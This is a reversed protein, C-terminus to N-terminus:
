DQILEIQGGVWEILLDIMTQTLISSQSANPNNTEIQAIRQIIVGAMTDKFFLHCILQAIVLRRDTKAISNGPYFDSLYKAIENRYEFPMKKEPIFVRLDSNEESQLTEEVLGIISAQIADNLRAVKRTDAVRAENQLIFEGRAKLKEADELISGVSRYNRNDETHFIGVMVEIKDPHDFEDWVPGYVTLEKKEKDPNISYILVKNNIANSVMNLNAQIIRACSTRFFTSWINLNNNDINLGKIPEKQLKDAVLFGVIALMFNRYSPSLQGVYENSGLLLEKYATLFLDGEETDNWIASIEMVGTNIEESTTKCLEIIEDRGLDELLAPKFDPGKQLSNFHTFQAIYSSLHSFVFDPMEIKKINIVSGRDTHGRVLDEVRGDLERVLPNVVNRVFHVQNQLPKIYTDQMEILAVALSPADTFAFPTNAKDVVCSLTQNLNENSLLVQTEPRINQVIYELASGSLPRLKTNPLLSSKATQASLNLLRQSIM